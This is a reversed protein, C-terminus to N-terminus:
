CWLLLGLRSDCMLGVEGYGGCMGGGMKTGRSQMVVIEPNKAKKGKVSGM